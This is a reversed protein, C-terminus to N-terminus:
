EMRGGDKTRPNLVRQAEVRGGGSDPLSVVAGEVGSVVIQSIKSVNPRKSLYSPMMALTPYSCMSACTNDFQVPFHASGIISSSLLQIDCFITGHISNIYALPAALLANCGRERSHKSMQSALLQRRAHWAAFHPNATRSGCPSSGTRDSTPSLNHTDMEEDSLRKFLVRSIKSM